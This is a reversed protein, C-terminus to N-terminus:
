FKGKRVGSILDDRVEDPQGPWHVLVASNGDFQLCGKAKLEEVFRRAICDPCNADACQGVVEGDGLHRQCGHGGTANVEIRFNGM